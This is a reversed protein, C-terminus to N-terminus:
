VTVRVAVTAGLVAVPLTCNRSPALLRPDTARLPAVAVRFIEVSATPSWERVAAYPPSGLSAGDVDAATFSIMACRDVLVASTEDCFGEATPCATLNVAVTVGFETAPDTFKMSPPVNSPVALRVPPLPDIVVEASVRPDWVM